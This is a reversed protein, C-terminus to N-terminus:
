GAELLEKLVSLRERWHAKFRKAAAEDPLREHQVAVLTKREDKPTFTVVLLSPPDQWDFRASTAASTPRRRVPMDPHWRPRVSPETFASMVRALPVQITRNASVAFGAAMQHKARMGRAREYGVTVSQAWWGDVDHEERLWRAIEPHRRQTADWADLLAFWGAWDRGTGQRIAEDSTPLEAAPGSPNEPADPRARADAKRILKSRATTYSEGTKASRARVRRKFTKQTPM